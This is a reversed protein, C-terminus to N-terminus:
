QQACASTDIDDVYSENVMDRLRRVEETMDQVAEIQAKTGALGTIVPVPGPGALVRVLM